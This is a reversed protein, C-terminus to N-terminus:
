LRSTPRARARAATRARVPQLREQAPHQRPLGGDPRVDRPYNPIDDNDQDDEADLLTDGDGDPEDAEVDSFPRQNFPGFYTEPWSKM